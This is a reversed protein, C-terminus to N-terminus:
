VLVQQCHSLLVSSEENTLMVCGDDDNLIWVQKFQQVTEYMYALRKKAGLGLIVDDQKSLNDTTM